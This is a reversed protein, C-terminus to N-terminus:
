CSLVHVPSPVPCCWKGALHAPVQLSCGDRKQSPSRPWQLRPIFIQLERPWIKTHCRKGFFVHIGCGESVTYIIYIYHLLAGSSCAFAVDGMRGLLFPCRRPIGQPQGSSSSPSAKHSSSASSSRTSKKEPTNQRCMPTNVLLITHQGFSVVGCGM